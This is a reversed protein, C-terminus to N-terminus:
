ASTPTARSCATPSTAAWRAPTRGSSARSASSAAYGGGLDERGRIGWFSTTLGGGGEQVTSARATSLKASDVYLGILGYMQVTSTSLQAAGANIQSPDAHAAGAGGALWVVTAACTARAPTFRRARRARPSPTRQM